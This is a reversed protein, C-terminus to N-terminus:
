SMVLLVDNLPYCKTAVLLVDHLGSSRSSTM